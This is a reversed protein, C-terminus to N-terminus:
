PSGSFNAVMRCCSYDGEVVTKVLILRLATRDYVAGAIKLSGYNENGAKSSVPKAKDTELLIKIKYKMIDHWM